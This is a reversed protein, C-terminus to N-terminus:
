KILVSYERLCKGFRAGHRAFCLFSTERLTMQTDAHVRISSPCCGIVARTINVVSYKLGYGYLYELFPRQCTIDNLITMM